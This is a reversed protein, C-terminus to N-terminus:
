DTRCAAATPRAPAIGAADRQGLIRNLLSSAKDDGLAKTLVTRIYEDSDLGISTNEETKGIFTALVKELEDNQVAKMSSMAAGLKQVERPGLYKMVEAAEDEGLALMLIAGKQVGADSM